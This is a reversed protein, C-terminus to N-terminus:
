KVQRRMLRLKNWPIQLDAKMALSHEVSIHISSISTVLKEREEAPQEQLESEFQASSSNGSIFSRVDALEQSRRQLTKRSAHSSPIQPTPM